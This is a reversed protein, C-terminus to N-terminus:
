YKDNIYFCSSDSKPDILPPLMDVRLISPMIAPIMSKRKLKRMKRPCFHFRNLKMSKAPEPIKRVATDNDGARTSTRCRINARSPASRPLSRARRM